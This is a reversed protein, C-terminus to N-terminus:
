PTKKKLHKNILDEDEKSVVPASPKSVGLTSLLSSADAGIKKDFDTRGTSSEYQQKLGGLQGAFLEKYKGLAGKLQELSSADSLQQKIEQRDSLAGASGLIAKTIEDSVIGKIANFNTVPDKGLEVKFPNVFRNAMKIDFNDLADIAKDLTAMHNIGVNIFRVSDGQKGTAFNQLAKQSVVYDQKGEMMSQASKQATPNAYAGSSIQTARELMADYDEKSRALPPMKGTKIFMYAGVDVADNSLTSKKEAKDIASEAVNKWVGNGMYERTVNVRDIPTTQREGVKYDEPPKTGSVIEFTGTATKNWKQGKDIPLGNAKAEDDTLMKGVEKKEKNAMELYDKYSLTGSQLARKLDVSPDYYKEEKFTPEPAQTQFTPAEAGEQPAVPVQVNNPIQVQRTANPKGINQTFQQGIDDKMMGYKLQALKFQNELAAKEDAKQKALVEQANGAAAGASEGFSGTKTPALFGQALKLWLERDTDAKRDQLSAQLKELQNDLLIRQSHLKGVSSEFDGINDEPTADTVQPLAM